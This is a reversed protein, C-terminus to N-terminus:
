KKTVESALVVLGTQFTGKVLVKTGNSLAACSPTFVTAPAAATTTIPTGSVSFSITPCTGTLGGISGEMEYIGGVADAEIQIKRAIVLNGPLLRGTVQVTQGVYLVHVGQTDGQRRVETASSTKVSYTGITLDLDPAAGSKASIVATFEIEEREIHIRTAYVFGDRQAGKVTVTVGNVLENFQSNGFFETATDGKVLTGNVTFQFATATGTFGSVVGNVNLGTSTNTNQIKVERALLSSGSGSGSTQGKVHVRQGLELSNFTASQGQLTFLTSSDTTVTMGAVVLAGAATTPPLSEVRGELQVESGLARRDSELTATSTTLSVAITLSQGNQVESLPLSANYGPASFRLEISGAPLNKLVFQGNNDVAAAINTNAVAV